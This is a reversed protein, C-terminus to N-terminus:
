KIPSEELEASKCQYEYKGQERETQQAEPSTMAAM